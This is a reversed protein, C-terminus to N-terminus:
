STQYLRQLVSLPRMFLHSHLIIESENISQFISGEVLWKTKESQSFEFHGALTMTMDNVKIVQADSKRKIAVKGFKQVTPKKL